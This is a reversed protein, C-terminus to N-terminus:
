KEILPLLSTMQGITLNLDLIDDLKIKEINIEINRVMLDNLQKNLEAADKKDIEVVGEESILTMGKEDKKAYTEILEEKLTDVMNQKERIERAICAIKYSLNINLQLPLLERITDSLEKLERAKIEM